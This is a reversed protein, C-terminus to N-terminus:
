GWLMLTTLLTAVGLILLGAGALTAFWIKNRLKPTLKIKKNKGYKKELSTGIGAGLAVGIAPGFAINNMAISIPMGIAIGIGIGLGMWNQVYYKSELRKKQAFVAFVALGIVLLAISGSIFDWVM